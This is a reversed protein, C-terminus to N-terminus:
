RDRRWGTLVDLRAQSRVAHGTAVPGGAACSDRAAGDGSGPPPTRTPRRSVGPRDSDSRDAGGADTWTSVHEALDCRVVKPAQGCPGSILRSALLRRPAVTARPTRIHLDM